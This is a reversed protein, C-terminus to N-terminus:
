GRNAKVKKIVVVMVTIALLSGVIIGTIALPSMGVEQPQGAKLLAAQALIKDTETNGSKINKKELHIRECEARKSANFPHKIGCGGAYNYEDDGDAYDYEDDGNANSMKKALSLKSPMKYAEAITASINTKGQAIIARLKGIESYIKALENKISNREKESLFSIALKSKLVSYRSILNKLKVENVSPKKVSVNAGKKHGFAYSYPDFGDVNSWEDTKQVELNSLVEKYDVINFGM